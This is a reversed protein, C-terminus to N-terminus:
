ESLRADLYTLITRGANIVLQAETSDLLGENPHAMSAQNRLPNLADLAQGFSQLIQQTRATNSAPAAALKPHHARMEKLLKSIPAGDDHNIGATECEGILYAHLTTHVRDVSVPAGSRSKLLTETDEIALLVDSRSTRPIKGDVVVGHLRDAWRLLKNQLEETRTEPSEPGGVPFRETVGRVIRAQAQPELDSVIAIFRERTTGELSDPDIDLDCYEPYFEAHTRYTFDGLFGQTVGIYRNVIQMIESRSLGASSM